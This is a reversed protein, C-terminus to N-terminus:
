QNKGSKDILAFIIQEFKQLSEAQDKIIQQQLLDKQNLQAIEQELEKIRPNKEAPFGPDTPHIGGNLPYNQTM